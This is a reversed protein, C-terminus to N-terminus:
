SCSGLVDKDGVQVHVIIVREAGSPVREDFRDGLQRGPVVPRIIIGGRCGDDGSRGGGSGDRAPTAPHDFTTSRFRGPRGRVILLNSLSMRFKLTVYPRGLATGLGCV